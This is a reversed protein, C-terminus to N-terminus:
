LLDLAIRAIRESAEDDVMMTDTVAVLLGTAEIQPALDRDQEDIVWASLLGEYCRAAEAATVGYGAAPMLKDAMGRVPAGGVIPSVGVIRDRRAELAERIGPVALIPFISAIPNSPCIFIIDAAEISRLVGEAPAAEEAGDYRISHVPPVAGYRVWFSQFDMEIDRGGQTTEIMTTIPDDSMPMILSRVAFRECIHRTAASLGDGRGAARASTRYLHTAMDLDGLGFWADPADLARLEETTRFTEGALGWGRERDMVGALWYTVSDLDPSVWLGHFERDDGTNVVVWLDEPAVVRVVGRLFKGAGIGGALAAVKM